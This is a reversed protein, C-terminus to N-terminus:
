AVLKLHNTTRVQTLGELIESVATMIETPTPDEIDSNITGGRYIYVRGEIIEVETVDGSDATMTIKM